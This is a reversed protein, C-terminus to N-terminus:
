SGRTIIRANIERMEDLSARGSAVVACQAWGLWRNLKGDNMPREHMQRQMDQLHAYSLTPGAPEIRDMGRVEAFSVTADMARLIENM